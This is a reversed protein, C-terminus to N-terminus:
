ILQPEQTKYWDALKANAIVIMKRMLATLAVMKKKGQLVLRRYFEGLRGKSRSATMAAMFLISRVDQRGGKTRRYGINKGSEYPHPALGTLSAIQKRNIVGLEPLLALLQNATVTGIGDVQQLVCQKAKQKPNADILKNIELDLDKLENELTKILKECSQMVWANHTPGQKRNKEQVLIAKLDLRRQTLQQLHEQDFDKAVFLALREYREYGYRALGAADIADSKAEKGLSRIFYKVKRTDARHLSIGKGILYRVLSMEYGGTTELIVLGSTFAAEFQQSFTQFGSETNDFEQTMRQHHSAVVFTDKGIDIGIFNQYM